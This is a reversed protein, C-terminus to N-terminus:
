NDLCTSYSNFSEASSVKFHRWCIRGGMAIPMFMMMFVCRFAEAIGEQCNTSDYKDWKQLQMVNTAAYASIIGTIYTKNSM